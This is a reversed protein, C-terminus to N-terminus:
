PWASNSGQRSIQGATTGTHQSAHLGHHGGVVADRDAGAGRRFLRAGARRTSGSEASPRELLGKLLCAEQAAVSIGQGYVPNFRCIADAIPLLGRPFTELREFHRLVVRRSVM